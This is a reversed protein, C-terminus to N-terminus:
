TAATLLVFAFGALAGLMVAALCSVFCVENRDSM